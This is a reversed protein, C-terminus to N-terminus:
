RKEAEPLSAGTKNAERDGGGHCSGGHTSNGGHGHGRMMFIHMLPCILFMLYFLSGGNGNAFLYFAVGIVAICGLIM